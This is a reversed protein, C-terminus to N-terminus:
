MIAVAPYTYGEGKLATFDLAKYAVMSCEEVHKTEEGRDKVDLQVGDVVSQVSIESEVRDGNEVTYGDHTFSKNERSGM